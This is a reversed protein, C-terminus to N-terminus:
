AKLQRFLLTVRVRYVISGSATMLARERTLQPQEALECDSFSQSPPVSVTGYKDFLGDLSTQLSDIQAETLNYACDVRVLRPETGTNKSIYGNGRPIPELVRRERKAAVLSNVPGIGTAADNWITTGAFTVTAM